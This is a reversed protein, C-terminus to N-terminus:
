APRHPSTHGPPNAGGRQRLAEAFYGAASAAQSLVLLFSITSASRTAPRSFPYLLMERYFRADRIIRVDGSERRRVRWFHFAGRGYRWHQHLFGSFNIAQRHVVVADPAFTLKSTRSWRACVDRDEAAALPFNEPFGGIALLSKRPFAMNNSCFFDPKGDGSEYLYSVLTQSAIGYITSDASDVIAGGLAAGPHARFTADFTRLWAPSPACDDDTFAVYAGHAARLAANRARAPGLRDTELYRVNMRQAFSEVLLRPRPATGDDVVIVEFLARSYEQDALAELCKALLNPREYTPVIVSFTM